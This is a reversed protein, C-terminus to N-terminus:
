RPWGAPHMTVAEPNSFMGEFFYPPCDSGGVVSTPTMSSFPTGPDLQGALDDLSKAAAIWDALGHSGATVAVSADGNARTTTTSANTFRFVRLRALLAAAWYPRYTAPDEPDRATDTLAVEIEESTFDGPQSLVQGIIFRVKDIPDNAPDASAM